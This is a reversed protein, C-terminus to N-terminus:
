EGETETKTEDKTAKKEPATVSVIDPNTRKFRTIGCVYFRDTVETIRYQDGTKLTVTWGKKPTKAKMANMRRGTM